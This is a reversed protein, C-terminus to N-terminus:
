ASATSAATFASHGAVHPGQPGRYQLATLALGLASYEHEIRIHQHVIGRCDKAEFLVVDVYRHRHEFFEVGALLAEGFRCAVHALDATEQVLQHLARGLLLDVAAEGQGGGHGDVVALPRGAAPQEELGLQEFRYQRVAQRSM